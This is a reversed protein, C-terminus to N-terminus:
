GLAKRIAEAAVNGRVLVAHVDYRLKNRVLAPVEDPGTTGKPVDYFVSGTTVEGFDKYRFEAIYHGSGAPEEKLRAIQVKPLNGEGYMELARELEKKVDERSIGLCQEMDKLVDESARATAIQEGNAGYLRLLLESPSSEDSVPMIRDYCQQILGRM